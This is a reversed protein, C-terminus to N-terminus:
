DNIDGGWKIINNLYIESNYIPKYMLRTGYSYGATYYIYDMAYYFPGAYETASAKGGIVCCKDESNQSSVYIYDGIPVASNANQAQTPIFAWPAEQDYGFYSVWNSTNAIASAFTKIENKNNKYTMYQNGNRSVVKADGIFSWINGYPNEVGRYSIASFGETTYTNTGDTTEAAMGSSNGLAATAGTYCSINYNKDTLKTIGKNFANQINLAGFEIIMLLQNMSEAALSTLHWNAGRNQALREANEVNLNQSTGSAPKVNAVSSLLDASFDINQTDNINYNEASTDFTSGEYASLLVYELENDNSDLFIPHISFGAQKVASIYIIEKNIITRETSITTRLPIRMYYFKPQYVMVQGASGDEIYNNDGYFAIIEGNNNVICRKRGGYMSYNDFDTGASLNEAEQKRTITRNDYDVEIGLASIPNYIGLAIQTKIVDDEKITSATLDGNNDISVLSNADDTSFHITASNNNNSSPINNIKTELYTKQSNLADTVAKQTMSGDENQGTTTYNKEVTYTTNANNKTVKVSKSKYNATNSDEVITQTVTNSLEFNNLATEIHADAIAAAATNLDNQISELNAAVTQAAENAAQATELAEQADEIKAAVTNAQAMAANAQRVLSETEGTFSKKKAILIDLINM